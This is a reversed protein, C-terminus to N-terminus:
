NTLPPWKNIFQLLMWFHFNIVKLDQKWHKLRPKCPNLRLQQQYTLDTGHHARRPLLAQNQAAAIHVASTFRMAIAGGYPMSCM